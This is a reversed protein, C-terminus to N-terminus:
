RRETLEGARVEIATRIIWANLYGKDSAKAQFIEADYRNVFKGARVKYYPADFVIQVDADLEVTAKALISRAEDGNETQLLQVQFGQVTVLSTDLESARPQGPVPQSEVMSSAAAESKRPIEFPPENLTAPDFSEDYNVAKRPAPQSEVQLGQDKKGGSCAFLAMALLLAINYEFRRRVNVGENEAIM